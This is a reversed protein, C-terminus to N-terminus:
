GMCGASGGLRQSGVRSRATAYRFAPSMSSCFFRRSREDWLSGYLQPAGLGMDPLLDRYTHLERERRDRGTDKPFFTVGFDKLFVRM